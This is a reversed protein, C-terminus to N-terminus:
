NEKSMLWIHAKGYNSEIDIEGRVGLGLRQYIQVTTTELVISSHTEKAQKEVLRYLAKGYGKRHRARMVGFIHLHWSNHTYGSGLTDANLRTMSPIFYDTWWKRLDDPAAELFQNWGAAREEESSFSSSGPPYWLAVGVIDEPQPGLTIVHVQGGILAARINAGLQLPELDMNGGVLINTFPDGKFADVLVKTAQEVEAESPDVLRKVLPYSTEAHLLSM